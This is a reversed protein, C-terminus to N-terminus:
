GAPGTASRREDFLTVRLPISALTDDQHQVLWRYLGQREFKLRQLTYVINRSVFPIFSSPFTVDLQAPMPPLCEKGDPDVCRIVFEHMGADEAQFVARVAISCQPHVVPFTQACLTDFAGQICLKGQYDAAFDCVIALQINM